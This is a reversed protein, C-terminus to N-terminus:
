LTPIWRSQSHNSRADPGIGLARYIILAMCLWEAGGLLTAELTSFGNYAAWLHGVGFLHLGLFALFIAWLRLSKCANWYTKASYLVLFVTIASFRVWRPQIRETYRHPILAVSLIAFLAVLAAAVLAVLILRRRDGLQVSL